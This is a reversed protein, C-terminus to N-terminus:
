SNSKTKRAEMLKMRYYTCRSSSAKHSTDVTKKDIQNHRHCNICTHDEQNEKQSCTRSDHEEACYECRQRFKKTNCESAIHGLRQCRYCRSISIYKRVPCGHFSIVLRRYKLLQQASQVDMEITQHFSDKAEIRKVLKIEVAYPVRSRIAQKLEDEKVHTPISFVILRQRKPTIKLRDKLNSDALREELNKADSAKKCKLQLNGGKLRRCDEIGIDTLGLEHMEKELEEPQLTPDTRRIIITEKPAKKLKKAYTDDDQGDTTDEPPNPQQHLFTSLHMKQDEFLKELQTSIQEHIAGNSQLKEILGQQRISEEQLTKLKESKEETIQALANIMLTLKQISSTSPKDTEQPKKTFEQILGLIEGHLNTPSPLKPHEVLEQRSNSVEPSESETQASNDSYAMEETEDEEASLLYASYKRAEEENEPIHRKLHRFLQDMIEEKSMERVTTESFPILEKRNTRQKKVKSSKKQLRNSEADTDEKRETQKRMTKLEEKLQELEQLQEKQKNFRTLIIERFNKTQEADGKGHRKKYKEYIDLLQELSCQQVKSDNFKLLKEKKQSLKTINKSSDSDDDTSYDAESMQVKSLKVRPTLALKKDNVTGSIEKQIEMAQQENSNMDM